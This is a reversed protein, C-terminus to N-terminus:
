KEAPAAPATLVRRVASGHERDWYDVEAINLIPKM